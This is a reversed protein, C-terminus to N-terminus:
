HSTKSNPKIPLLTTQRQGRKLLSFSFFLTLHHTRNPTDANHPVHANTLRFAERKSNLLFSLNDKNERTLTSSM